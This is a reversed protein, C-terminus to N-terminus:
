SMNINGMPLLHTQSSVIVNGDCFCLEKFFGLNSLKQNLAERIKENSQRLRKDV